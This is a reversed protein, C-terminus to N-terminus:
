EYIDDTEPARLSERISPNPPARPSAPHPSPTVTVSTLLSTTPLTGPSHIPSSGPLPPPRIQLFLSIVRFTRCFPKSRVSSTSSTPYGQRDEDYVCSSYHTCSLQYPSLASSLSPLQYGRKLPHFPFLLMYMRKPLEEIPETIVREAAQLVVKEIPEPVAVQIGESVVVKEPKCRCEADEYETSSDTPCVEATVFPSTPESECGPRNQSINLCLSLKPAQKPISRSVRQPKRNRLVVVATEYLSPTSWAFSTISSSRASSSCATEPEFPTDDLIECALYLHTKM